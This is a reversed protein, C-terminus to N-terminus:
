ARQQARFLHFCKELIADWKAKMKEEFKQLSDDPGSLSVEFRYRSRNEAAHRLAIEPEFLGSPFFVGKSIVSNPIQLASDLLSLFVKIRIPNHYVVVIFFLQKTSIIRFTM